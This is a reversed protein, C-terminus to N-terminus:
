WYLKGTKANNDNHVATMNHKRDSLPKKVWDHNTASKFSSELPVKMNINATDYNTASWLFKRTPAQLIIMIQQKNSSSGGM